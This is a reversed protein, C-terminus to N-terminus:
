LALCKKFHKYAFKTALWPCTFKVHTRHKPKASYLHKTWNCEGVWGIELRAAMTLIVMNTCPPHPQLLILQVDKAIIPHCVGFPIYPHQFSPFQHHPPMLVNQCRWKAYYDCNIGEIKPILSTEDGWGLIYAITFIHSNSIPKTTIFPLTCVNQYNSCFWM